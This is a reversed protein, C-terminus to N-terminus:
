NKDSDGSDADDSDDSESDDSDGENDGTLDQEGSVKPTNPDTPGGPIPDGKYDEPNDVKEGGVSVSGDEHHRVDAAGLKATPGAEYGTEGDPGGFTKYKAQDDPWDDLNEPPDEELAKVTDEAKRDADEHDAAATKADSESNSDQTEEDMGKERTTVLL